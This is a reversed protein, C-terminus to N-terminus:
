ALESRTRNAQHWDYIEEATAFWVDKHSLVYDLAQTFYKLRHPAGIIYPHVSMSMVRPQRIGESYLCDFQDKTRSLWTSSEHQHAVMM